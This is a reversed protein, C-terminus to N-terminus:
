LRRLPVSIFLPCTVPCHKKNWTDLISIRTFYEERGILFSSKFAFVSLFPQKLPYMAQMVKQTHTSHPPPLSEKQVQYCVNKDSITFSLNKVARSNHASYNSESSSYLLISSAFYSFSLFEYHTCNSKQTTQIESQLASLLNIPSGHIKPPNPLLSDYSSTTDHNKLPPVSILYWLHSTRTFTRASVRIQSEM